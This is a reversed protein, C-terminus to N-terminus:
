TGVHTLGLEQQIEAVIDLENGFTKQWVASGSHFAVGYGGHRHHIPCLPIIDYNSARQGKGVGTRIHHIEAPSDMYGLTRCAYCGLGAVKSIYEREAKTTM